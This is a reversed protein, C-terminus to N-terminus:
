QPVSKEWSYILTFVDVNGCFVLAAAGCLVSFSTMEVVGYVGWAHYRRFHLKLSVEVQTSKGRSAEVQRLQGQSELIKEKFISYISWGSRIMKSPM